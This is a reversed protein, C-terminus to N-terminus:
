ELIFDKFKNNKFNEIEYKYPPYESNGKKVFPTELIKPVSDLRKNHVVKNLATFGITGYGINAHRDKHAGVFNKSDNIHVCGIRNIGIKKDFIDLFEDFKNIDIGSDNMHCTDLCVFVKDKKEVNNVVYAIDDLNTCLEKGKGSMFEVLINIDKDDKLVLDISKIVNDLGEEKTLEGYSGPHIVLNKIGFAICRDIESKLFSIYFNYKRSDSDNGFNIIYPAHVIVNNIDMNNEEMLKKAKNVTDIDIVSRNTNTPSGTYFMFTNANYELSEKVVGVLGDKSNYHTHSGIIM